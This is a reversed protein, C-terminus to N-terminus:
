IATKQLIYYRVTVADDPPASTFRMVQVQTRASTGTTGTVHRARGTVMRLITGSASLEMIPTPQSWNGKGDGSPVRAFFLSSPDFEIGTTVAVSQYTQGKLSTRPITLTGSAVISFFDSSGDIIVTGNGNTVSISGGVVTIGDADVLVSQDTDTGNSMEEGDPNDIPPGQLATPRVKDEFELDLAYLDDTVQRITRRIVRYYANIDYRSLELKLAHGVLIGGVYAAPLDVSLTLSAQEESSRTLWRAAMAQAKTATKARMYRRYVERVRYTTATTDNQATTTAGGRYRIRVRSYVRSPDLSLQTAYPGFHTTNNIATADDTITLSSRFVPLGGGDVSESSAYWLLIEGPNSGYLFFNKGSAQACDELIDRPKKGRYDIADMDVNDGTPVYGAVIGTMAGTSLLWLIRQRDTEAPRKKSGQMADTIIRDDLRANIDEITVNWQRGTPGARGREATREALFGAFLLSNSGSVTNIVQLPKQAPPLYSADDDVMVLVGTGVQGRYAYQTLDWETFRVRDVVASGDVEFTLGM